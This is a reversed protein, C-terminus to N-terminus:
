PNSLWELVATGRIVPVATAGLVIRICTVGVYPPVSGPGVLIAVNTMISTIDSYPLPRYDTATVVTGYIRTFETFGNINIPIDLETGASIAGFRYIKRLTQQQTNNIFWTEGTIAPKNTPFEGITRKNVAAAIDIYSKTLEVCLQHIDVPFDRTTRLYAVQNVVNASM